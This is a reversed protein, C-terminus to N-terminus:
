IGRRERLWSRGRRPLVWRKPTVELLAAAKKVYEPVDVIVPEDATVQHGAARLLNNVYTVWPVTPALRSMEGLTM